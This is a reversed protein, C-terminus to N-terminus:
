ILAEIKAALIFDNETLGNIKHTWIEVSVKGWALYIDPHHQEAEALEGIRNVFELATVFDPFSFNKRIKHGTGEVLEWAELEALLPQIETFTLPAANGSCPVCSKKVLNDNMIRKGRQEVEIDKSM